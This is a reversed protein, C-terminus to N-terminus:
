ARVLALGDWDTTYCPTRREQKMCWHRQDGTLGASALIVAGRGFRQNVADLALILKDSALVDADDRVNIRLAYTRVNKDYFM